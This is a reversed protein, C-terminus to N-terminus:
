IRPTFSSRLTNSSVSFHYVSLSYLMCLLFEECSVFIVVLYWVIGKFVGGRLLWPCFLRRLTVSLPWRVGGLGPLRLCGMGDELEGEREM